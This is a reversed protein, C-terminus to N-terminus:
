VWYLWVLQFFNNKFNWLAIIKRVNWLKYFVDKRFSYKFCKLIYFLVTRWLQVKLFFVKSCISSNVIFISTLKGRQFKGNRLYINSCYVCTSRPSWQKCRSSFILFCDFCNVSLVVMWWKKVPVVAIHLTSLLKGLGKEVLKNVQSDASTKLSVAVDRHM